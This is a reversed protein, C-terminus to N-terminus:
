SFSEGRYSDVIFYVVILSLISIIGVQINIPQNNLGFLLLLLIIWVVIFFTPLLKTLLKNIVWKHKKHSEKGIQGFWKWIQEMQNDIRRFERDYYIKTTYGFIFATVIGAICMIVSVYLMIGKQIDGGIILTAFAMFFISQTFLLFNIRASYVQLGGMRWQALIRSAENEDIDSFYESKDDSMIVDFSHLMIFRKLPSTDKIRCKSKGGNGLILLFTRKYIYDSSYATM